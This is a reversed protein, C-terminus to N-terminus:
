DTKFTFENIANETWKGSEYIRFSERGRGGQEMKVSEKKDKRRERMDEM